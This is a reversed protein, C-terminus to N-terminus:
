GEGKKEWKINGRSVSEDLRAVPMSDPQAHTRSTVFFLDDWRERGRPSPSEYIYYNRRGGCELTVEGRLGPSPYLRLDIREVLTYILVRRERGNIQKEGRREMGGLGDRSYGDEKRGNCDQTNLALSKTYNQKM